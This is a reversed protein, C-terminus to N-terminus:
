EATLSPGCQRRLGRKGSVIEFEKKAKKWAASDKVKFQTSISLYM